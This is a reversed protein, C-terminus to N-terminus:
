GHGSATFSMILGTVLGLILAAIGITVLAPTLQVREEDGEASNTEAKLTQNSEDPESAKPNPPQTQSM